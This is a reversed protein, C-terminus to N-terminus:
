FYQKNQTKLCARFLLYFISNYIILIKSEKFPFYDIIDGAKYHSIDLVQSNKKSKILIKDSTGIKYFTIKTNPAKKVELTFENISSNLHVADMSYGNEGVGNYIIGEKNKNELFSTKLDYFKYSEEKELLTIYNNSGKDSKDYSSIVIREKPLLYLVIKNILSFGLFSLFISIILLTINKKHIKYTM